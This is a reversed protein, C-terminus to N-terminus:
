SRRREYPSACFFAGDTVTFSFHVVIYEQVRSKLLLSVATSYAIGVICYEARLARSDTRSLPRPRIVDDPWAWNSLRLNRWGADSTVSFKPFNRTRVTPRCALPIIKFQNWRYFHFSSMWVPITHYYIDTSRFDDRVWAAQLRFVNFFKENTPKERFVAGQPFNKLIRNRFSENRCRDILQTWIEHFKASPFDAFDHM